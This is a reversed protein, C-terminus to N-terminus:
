SIKSQHDPSVASHCETAHIAQERETDGKANRQEPGTENGRAGAGIEDIVEDNEDYSRILLTLTLLKMWTIATM